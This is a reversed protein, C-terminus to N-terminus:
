KGNDNEINWTLTTINQGFMYKYEVNECMSNLIKLGFRQGDVEVKTPDFSKGDDKVTFVLSNDKLALRVDTYHASMDKGGHQSINLLVEEMCHVANNVMKGDLNMQELLTRKEDLYSNIEATRVRVSEYRNLGMDDNSCVPLLVVPLLKEDKRRRRIFETAACTVLLLLWASEPFAYWLMDPGALHVWAIMSSILVVPFMLLIVPTLLMFGLMQYIRALTLVICYPTLLLLFIRIGRTAMGLVGPSTIGFISCCWSPFLEFVVTFSLSLWFIMKLCRLVLINLGPHDIDGHLHGGVTMATNGFGNSVMIAISLINMCVALVSMGDAGLAGQVITNMSFVLIMLVMNSVLLPLGQLINGKFCPLIESLRFTFKFSCRKGMIYSLLVAIGCAYATVTAYASGAIGMNLGGVFLFDLLVNVAATVFVAKAALEPAGDASVIQSFLMSLMPFASFALMVTSYTKTYDYLRPESCVVSTISDQFVFSLVGVLVGAVVVSLMAMSLMKGVKDYSRAGILKAVVITAGLGLFSVISILAMNLPMYLTIASMADAGILHSVIISDATVAFQQVVMTLVSAVLFFRQARSLMYTNRLGM